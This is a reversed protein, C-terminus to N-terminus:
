KLFEVGSYIIANGVYARVQYYQVKKNESASLKDTLKKDKILGTIPQIQNEKEGRYVVYGMLPTQSVPTWILKSEKKRKNYQLKLDIKAITGSEKVFRRAHVEKSAKSNNGASDMAVLYYLYDQNALNDRDTYRFTERGLLNINLRSFNKSTDARYIHYGALDNDVNPIWEVIIYEENYTAGKIFPKEPALIDPMAGSAYSSPKSRNYSTDVAVVYYFFKNKVNKPLEQSFETAKLPKANLLIYNQKKSKNVTRYIYYGDLDPEDVKDWSLSIRGTDTKIKLNQPQSPPIVDQIEVFVLNSHSENAALDVSSVFYYYPGPIEISDKFHITNLDLPQKNVISFPGDSKRSRHINVGAIDDSTQNEWKLNVKMSDAKGTLNQPAPPPTTDKFSVQIPTSLQTENGFFGVGAIQYTYTVGEELKVSESFMPNPYTLKGLSDTVQSLMLPNKNLKLVQKDTSSMRYVNISYFRDEEQKWNIHVMKGKQLAEIKDVPLDARYDGAKITSSIGLLLEQGKQIRNIKYQYTKDASVSIDEYYIGMYDAFPNSQFSKILLNFLIISQQMEQPSVSEIMKVFTDMDPDASLLTPPVSKKKLIPSANIKIWNLSNEEKRYINVGESYILEKSYWKLLVVPKSSTSQKANEVLIRSDQGSGIFPIFLLTFSLAFYVIAQKPM